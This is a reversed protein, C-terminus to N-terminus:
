APTKKKTEPPPTINIKIGKVAEEFVKKLDINQETLLEKIQDIQTDTFTKEIDYTEQDMIYAENSSKKPLQKKNEKLVRLIEKYFLGDPVNVEYITHERPQNEAFKSAIYNNGSVITALTEKNLENNKLAMNYYSANLDRLDVFDRNGIRIVNFRM